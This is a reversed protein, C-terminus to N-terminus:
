LAPFRSDQPNISPYRQIFQLILDKLESGTLVPLTNSIASNSKQTPTNYIIRAIYCSTKTYPYIHM